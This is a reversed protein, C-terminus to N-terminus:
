ERSAKKRARKYVTFSQTKYSGDIVYEALWKFEEKTRTPGTYKVLPKGETDFIMMVPTARVRYKKEALVQGTSKTGDFDVVAHSGEIDFMFTLFNEKYLAIVDPETMITSRMRHCFPCEEMHFFIFVGKKGAEKAVALEEQYDGFSEDFFLDKASWSQPSLSMLAPLLSIM